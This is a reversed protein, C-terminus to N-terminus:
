AAKKSRIGEMLLQRIVSTKTNAQLKAMSEIEASLLREIFGM